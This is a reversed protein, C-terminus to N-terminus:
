FIASLLQDIFKALLFLGIVSFCAGAIIASGRQSNEQRSTMTKRGARVM